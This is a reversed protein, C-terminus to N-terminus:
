LEEQEIVNLEYFNDSARTMRLVCTLGKTKDLATLCANAVERVSAWSVDIDILVDEPDITGIRLWQLESALDPNDFVYNQLIERTTLQAVGWDLAPRGDAANRQWDTVLGCVSLRYILPQCTVTVMADRGRRIKLGSVIWEDFDDDARRVRAIQSERVNMGADSQRPTSFVM